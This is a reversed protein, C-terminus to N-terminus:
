GFLREVAAKRRKRGAHSYIATTAPSAHGLNEQVEDISAGAALAHTAHTHRLWHTSAFLLHGADMASDMERAVRKFHKGLMRALASESLAQSDGKIVHQLGEPLTVILPTAEPWDGPDCGFGRAAMYDMLSAMVTEPVPISRLKFGKGIVEIDWGDGDRAPKLGPNLEGARAGAKATQMAVLESIRLGLGYAALLTFRLRLRSEDDPLQDCATILKDWQHKTLSHDARLTLQATQAPPVGDWPNSELYRQRMLWECLATLIVVAQRQSAPALPGAFPRWDPSWRPTSKQGIWATRPLQWYWLKDGGLSDLFDRYSICDETTASSLPKNRELVMWLLFREAQIRYSRVTHRRSGLSALWVNLAAFDDAAALKSGYCRNSGVAGSLAQPPLFRELPVIGTQPTPARMAAPPVAGDALFDYRALWTQLREAGVAGLKPVTRYWRPGRQHIRALLEELTTLGAGALRQALSEDLWIAVDDTLRPATPVWGELWNVAERLKSRLRANRQAQRAQRPDSAGFDAEFLAILEKESYFGDPDRQLRFDELDPVASAAAPPALRALPIALLRAVAPRQRRAAAILADRVWRLTAKAKPRDAGTELYRAGLHALDLGELHGRFFALHHPGLPRPVTM